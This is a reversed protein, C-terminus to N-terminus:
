SITKYIAKSAFLTLVMSIHFGNNNKTDFEKFDSSKQYLFFNSVVDLIQLNNFVLM